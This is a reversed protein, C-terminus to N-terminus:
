GESQAVPGTATTPSSPAPAAESPAPRQETSPAPISPAVPAGTMGGVPAPAPAVPAAPAPAVAAPPAMQPATPSTPAPPVPATVAMGTTDSAPAEQLAPPVTAPASYATSAANVETEVSSAASAPETTAQTAVDTSANVPSGAMGPVAAVPTGTEGAAQLPATTVASAGTGQSVPTQPSAAVAESPAAEASADPSPAAKAVATKTPKPASKRQKALYSAYSPGNGKIVVPTGVDVHRYLIPAFNKPMRICGHSARNGPRPIPGAHLGIGDNTLRLFYPMPAGKFSGGAPVSHVGMKANRRVLKGNKNYIKGYLNSRKNQVKETVAFQGTPTPYKHVGSAVTTWGVLKDGSFFRAKQENISVEIHSLYENKGWWEYLPSPPPPKIPEPPPKKEAVEPEPQPEPEPPNFHACSSLMAAVLVAALAAFSRKQASPQASNPKM